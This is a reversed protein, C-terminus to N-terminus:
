AKKPTLAGQRWCLMTCRKESVALAGSAWDLQRLLMLCMFVGNLSVAVSGLQAHLGPGKYRSM